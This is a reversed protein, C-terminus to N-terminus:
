KKSKKKKQKPEVDSLVEIAYGFDKIRKLEKEDVEIPEYAKYGKAKYELAPSSIFQFKKM